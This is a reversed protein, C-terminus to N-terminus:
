RAGDRSRRGAPDPRLGGRRRVRAAQRRRVARIAAVRAREEDDLSALRDEMADLDRRRQGQQDDTFLM